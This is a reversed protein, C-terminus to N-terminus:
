PRPQWQNFQSELDHAAKHDAEETKLLKVGCKTCAIFQLGPKPVPKYGGGGGGGRQGQCEYQEHQLLFEILVQQKCGECEVMESSAKSEESAKQADIM